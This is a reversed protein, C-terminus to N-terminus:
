VTEDYIGERAKLYDAVLDDRVCDDPNDYWMTTATHMKGLTTLFQDLEDGHRLYCQRKDGCFIIRSNDGCRTIAMDLENLTMNAVEDVIVVTNHYTKGQEYTTPVCSVVNRKVLVGMADDRGCINNVMDRYLETYPRMKDDVAGPLHGMDKVAVPPRIIKVHSYEKENLVQELAWHVAIHTKGVGPFGLVMTVPYKDQAALQQGQTETRPTCITAVVATNQAPKPKSM